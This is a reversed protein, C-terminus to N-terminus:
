FHRMKELILKENEIKPFHDFQQELAKTKM